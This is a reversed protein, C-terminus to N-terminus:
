HPKPPELFDAVRGLAASVQERIYPFEAFLSEAAQLSFPLPKDGELTINWSEICRLLLELSMAEMEDVGLTTNTVGEATMAALRRQQQERLVQRYRASYPGHLDITMPSGDANLFPKNKVPHHLTVTATEKITGVDRLSM